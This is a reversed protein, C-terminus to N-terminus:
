FDVLAEELVVLHYDLRMGFVVPRTTQCTKLLFLLVFVRGMCNAEEALYVGLIKVLFLAM